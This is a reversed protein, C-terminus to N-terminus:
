GVAAGPSPRVGDARSLGRGAPRELHVEYVTTAGIRYALRLSDVADLDVM